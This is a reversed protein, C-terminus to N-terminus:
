SFATLTVYSHYNSIDYQPCNQLYQNTNYFQLVDSQVMPLLKQLTRSITNKNTNKVYM